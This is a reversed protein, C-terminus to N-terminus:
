GRAKKLLWVYDRKTIGIAKLIRDLLDGGPGMMLITNLKTLGMSLDNALQEQTISKLKMAAELARKEKTKRM